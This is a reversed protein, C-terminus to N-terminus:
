HELRIRTRRLTLVIGTIILMMIIVVASSYGFRFRQFAFHYALTTFLHSAGGPGGTTMIWVLDFVKITYITGLLITLIAMPRLLPITIYWMTQWENAGDVKACEYLELPIAQLGTFLMIFNFPIGLWINALTLTYIVISPNTLWPIPKALIGLGILLCNVLGTEGSFFWRFVAGSVVIPIFWPLLVVARYFTNLPFRKSFLLAFGFGISFQIVISGSWFILTNLLVRLFLPDKALDRYNKFGVWPSGGRLLTTFTVQRFSLDINYILPYVLVLLCCLVVPTVFLFGKFGCKM